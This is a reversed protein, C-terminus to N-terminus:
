LARISDVPKKKAAHYVPLFTAVLATLLAIGVLIGFSAAGFVFLSAGLSAAVFTNLLGCVVISAVTALATCLAAIFFSESFFIKFVDASRAGVARLIGIERRKQSVSVSIFNSFLLIAFAAFVLGVYLFVTSLEKVMGDVNRLTYIFNGVLQLRSHTEDLAENSYVDWYRDAAEESHAYDLYLTEYIGDSSPVYDTSFETYYTLFEKQTTWLRNFDTENLLASGLGYNGSETLYVSVVDFEAPDGVSIQNGHDFVKLGVTLPVGEKQLAGTLELILDKREKETLPTPEVNGDEGIKDYYVGSQLADAKSALSFYDDASASGEFQDQANAKQRFYESLIQGLAKDSLCVEGVNPFTAAGALSVVDEEACSLHNKTLYQLNSWDPFQYQGDQKLAAVASTYNHVGETYSGQLNSIEELQEPCVFAVLHLGDQLYELFDRGDAHNQDQVTKLTEYKAPIEGSDFIGTVTFSMGNLMISKGIIEEPTSLTMSTGDSGYPKCAVLMEATYSSILIENKKAPYTGRIGNRLGHGEDLVGVTNLTNNWYVSESPRTNLSSMMSIGGFVDTDWEAALAKLEAESFNARYFNESEGDKQGNNYWIVTAPYERQLQMLTVNSDSLTQKFTAESDYFNLTSLLGFLGFAITCLLVTFLLRVPKSRLSSAGIKVAHRLPLKSRIFRGDEPKYAKQETAKTDRFVEKEGKDNIRSVKKFSKVDTEGTAILATEDSQKLFAKIKEFDGESLDKGRKICLVGGVATVNESVTQQPLNTKSVDSLIKGDKLEIIRDGYQEAFDRDHSVIIVLKDRSLKKLTDFVQKGTNSDLAGTPEDAMIIEPNKILARAIAIRQKQGGSLTNPKRKAFGGLDVQELLARIAEKDKSKGQLEPALAINDEVSFENLINYEQFIFGIFTNRYSDFDSQSFDKSSRGKVIIEGETPTDLGGCVNLLTSKGSGSKGLLFVMGKEPFTLSVGDLAHVDTGNKTKYIKKLNRVELM